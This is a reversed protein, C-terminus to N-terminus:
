AIGLYATRILASNQLEKPTGSGIVRGSQMVYIYDAIELAREVMQEVLLITTGSGSLLKIVEFVQDIVIPALGLSPEDLLLLKPDRMLAQGIALMQQQGGSLIGAKVDLREGLVPFLDIVRQQREAEIKRGATEGFYGLELNDRVSQSRFLRRGEAVHLLGAAVVRDPRAGTLDAGDFTIRGASPRLLGSLCRLLTSKGAGNSGVISLIAGPQIALSVDVLVGVHGYGVTLNEVDLLPKGGPASSAANMM